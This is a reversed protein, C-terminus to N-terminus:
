VMPESALAPVAASPAAVSVVPPSLVEVVKEPTMPPVPPSVFFPLPMKVSLPVFVKVPAVAILAPVSLSPAAPPRWLAEATLTAPPAVNSRLLKEAVMPESAPAPLTVSPLPESVAPPLLEEVVKELTMLPEPPSVFLPVPVSVSLPVFVNEPATVILLPVSFKEPADPRAALADPKVMPVPAVSVSSLLAPSCASRMPLLAASVSLPPVSRKTESLLPEVSVTPASLAVPPAEPMAIVCLPAAPSLVESVNLESPVMVTPAVTFKLAVPPVSPEVDVPGCM